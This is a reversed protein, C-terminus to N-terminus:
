GDALEGADTAGPWPYHDPLDPDGPAPAPKSRLREYEAKGEAMQEKTLKKELEERKSKAPGYDGAALLLAYALYYLVTSNNLDLGAFLSRGKLQMGDDGAQRAQQAAVVRHAALDALGRHRHRQEGIVGVHLEIEEAAPEAGTLHLHM